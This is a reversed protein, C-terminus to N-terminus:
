VVAETGREAGPAPGPITPERSGEERSGPGPRSNNAITFRRPEAGQGPRQGKSPMPMSSTASKHLGTGTDRPRHRQLPLGGLVQLRPSHRPRLHTLCCLRCLHQCHLQGHLLKVGIRLHALCPRAPIDYARMRHAQGRRQRPLVLPERNENRLCRLWHQVTEQRTLCVPGKCMGLAAAPQNTCGTSLSQSHGPRGTSHLGRGDERGQRM